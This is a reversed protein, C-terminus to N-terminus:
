RFVVSELKGSLVDNYVSIYKDIMGEIGFRTDARVRAACGMSRWLVCDEALRRVAAVFAAVDDQPCLLGTEGDGVVEPLASGRTAVVPIGCAQAELAVLGFGELRTPFLLADAEQYLRAMQREDSLCSAPRMNEHTPFAASGRYGGKTYVLEFGSGLREMIPALLDAGKRKSWNGVFLLRFPHHPQRERAPMFIATDVGNPIVELSRGSSVVAGQQQTYNSVAVCRDVRAILRREMPTIWYRHYLSQLLTKYPALTKDQVCHHLTAVLPLSVQLFRSSLWTNVHVINAWVPKEPVPVSWPAYEARLPLWAIDAQLGRQRLGSALRETFVDVGSGTRIAPFWVAPEQELNGIM